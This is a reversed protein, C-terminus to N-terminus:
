RATVTATAKSGNSHNNSHNNSHSNNDLQLLLRSNTQLDILSPKSRRWLLATYCLKNKRKRPLQLREDLPARDYFFFRFVSACDHNNIKILPVMIPYNPSNIELLPDELFSLGGMINLGRAPLSSRSRFFLLQFRISCGHSYQLM